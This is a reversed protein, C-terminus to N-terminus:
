APVLPCGGQALPRFAQEGPTTQILDYLDWDSRAAAPAKVRFLHMDHIKRGDERIRGPGFLPDTTPMRKMQAVVAAGDAKPAGAAIARLYHLVGAYCGAHIMSPKNGGNALAWRASFARTADDNLNWYFSETNYLGQAAEIGVGHLQPLLCQLTALKAGGQTLGFEGAQKVCNAADTGANALGIM